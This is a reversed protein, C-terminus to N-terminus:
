VVNKIETRFDWPIFLNGKVADENWDDKEHIPTMWDDGYRGKLYDKHNVPIYCDVGQVDLPEREVSWSPRIVLGARGIHLYDTGWKRFFCVDYIVKGHQYAISMVLDKGLYNFRQKRLHVFGKDLMETDFAEIDEDDLLVDIDLDIDHHIYQDDERVAGLLSGFGLQWNNFHRDTISNGLELVPKWDSHQLQTTQIPRYDTTEPIM